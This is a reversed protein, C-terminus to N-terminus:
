FALQLRMQFINAFGSDQADSYVYNWSVRVNPNLYWNLGVTLDSVRGGLIDDDNLDLYSFRLAAEWAGMGGDEGFNRQPRIRGFEAVDTEYSRHEGTFVYSGQVYFSNFQLEGGDKRNVFAHIYEGQLSFSGYVLAAELGVLDVADAAIDGSDALKPALHSEPRADFGIDDGGPDQHSWAFGVHLLKRGDDEYWPLSTVRGTLHLGDSLEGDFFDDTERFVGVAWTMRDGLATSHLMVGANRGPAFAETTLSREMFMIYKSSTLENLGFPEKFHGIRLNGIAPFDVLGIYVDKAEIYGDALDIQTKFEFHKYLTGSYYVRGRRVETGEEFDGFDDEIDHRTDFVAWDGQFRGGLKLRFNKDPSEIRLTDKWFVRLGEADTQDHNQEASADAPQRTTAPRVEQDEQPEVPQTTQRQQAGEVHDQAFAVAGTGLLMAVACLRALSRRGSASPHRRVELSRAETQEISWM